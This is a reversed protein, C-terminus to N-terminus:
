KMVGWLKKIEKIINTNPRWDKEIKHLELNDECKQILENFEQHEKANFCDDYQDMIREKHCELICTMALLESPTFKMEILSM